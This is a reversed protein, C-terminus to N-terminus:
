KLGQARIRPMTREAIASRPNGQTVIRPTYPRQTSKLLSVSRRNAAVPEAAYVVEDTTRRLEAIDLAAFRADGAAHARDLFRLRRRRLRRVVRTPRGEFSLHAGTAQRGAQFARDLQDVATMESLSSLGDGFGPQQRRVSRFDGCELLPDVRPRTRARDEQCRWILRDNRYLRGNGYFWGSGPFWDGGNLIPGRWSSLPWPHHDRHGDDDRKEEDGSVAHHLESM